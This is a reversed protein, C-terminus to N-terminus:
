VAYVVNYGGQQMVVQKRVQGFLNLILQQNQIATSVGSKRSYEIELENIFENVMLGTYSLNGLRSLPNKVIGAAAVSQEAATLSSGYLWLQNSGVYSNCTGWTDTLYALRQNPRTIGDRPLKNAGNVRIQQKEDLQAVSGLNAYDKSFVANDAESAPTASTPTNIILLRDLFKNNFGNINFTQSQATSAAAIAPLVVRDHEICSYSVGKYNKKVSAQASENSLEDVILLPETTGNVANGFGVFMNSDYEIVLRLNQYVNSPLYMGADLFPLLKKLNLWGVNTPASVSQPDNANITRPTMYPVIQSGDFTFGMNSHQLFKEMDRENNNNHRFGSFAIWEKASLIQDLLQNGDYLRISKIVGAAGTLANYTAGNTGKVGINAIRMNTLYVTDPRLRFETQFNASNYIPDVLHTKINSNYFSM